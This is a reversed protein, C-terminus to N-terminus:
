EQLNDRERLNLEAFTRRTLPTLANALTYISYM